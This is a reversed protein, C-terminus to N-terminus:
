EAELAEMMKGYKEDAFFDKFVGDSKYEDYYYYIDYEFSKRLYVYTNQYDKMKAYCRAMHYCEYGPADSEELQKSLVSLAAEYQGANYYFDVRQYELQYREDSDVEKKEDLIKLYNNCAEVGKNYEELEYYAFLLDMNYEHQEPDLAVAKELLNAADAYKKDSYCCNGYYYFYEPNDLYADKISEFLRIAKEYDAIGYLSIAKEYNGKVEDYDMQYYDISEEALKYLELRNYCVGYYYDEEHFARCKKTNYNDLEVIAKEYQEENIYSRILNIEKQNDKGSCGTSQFCLIIVLFIVLKKNM